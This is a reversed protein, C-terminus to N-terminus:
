KIRHARLGLGAHTTAPVSAPAVGTGAWGRGVRRGAGAETFTLQTGTLHTRYDPRDWGTVMGLEGRLGLSTTTGCLCALLEKILDAGLDLEKM